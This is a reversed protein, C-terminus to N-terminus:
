KVAVKVAKATGVKVIYLGKALEITQNNSVAQKVLRGDIGYISVNENAATVVIGGVVGYAQPAASIQIKAVGTGINTVSGDFIFGFDTGGTLDVADEPKAFDKTLYVNTIGLGEFASMGDAWYDLFFQAMSTCTLFNNYDSGIVNQLNIAISVPKGEARPYDIWDGDLGVETWGVNIEEDDNRGQYVFKLGGFGNAHDGVGETEIVMYKAAAVQSMIKNLGDWGQKNITGDDIQDLGSFDTVVVSNELEDINTVSGDFIFGYDAGLKLAVASAPESFDETLYVKTLGLGDYPWYGIEFRASDTCQLFNDYNDGLANKLNIAVSVTKGEARTYLQWDVTLNLNIGEVKISGDANRGDCIFHIGGFFTPSDGEGETELVLYKAAAVNDMLGAVNWWNQNDYQTDPGQDVSALDMIVVNGASMQMGWLLMMVSFILFTSIKRMNKAKKM